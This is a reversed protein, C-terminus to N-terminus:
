GEMMLRNKMFFFNTYRTKTTKAVEKKVEQLRVQTQSHLVPLPTTGISSLLILLFSARSSHSFYEVVCYANVLPHANFYFYQVLFLARQDIRVVAM